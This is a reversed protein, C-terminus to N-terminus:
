KQKLTFVSYDATEKGDFATPRGKREEDLVLKLQKGDISYIGLETKGKNEGGIHTFDIAKPSKTPDLKIQYQVLAKGKEKVTFVDKEFHVSLAAIEEAPVAKTKEVLSVVEWDGQMAMLDGASDGASALTAVVFVLFFSLSALHKLM